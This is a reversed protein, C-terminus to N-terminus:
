TILFLCHTCVWDRVLYYLTTHKMSESGLRLRSQLLIHRDRIARYSRVATTVLILRHRWVPNEQLPIKIITPCRKCRATNYTNGAHAVACTPQGGLQGLSDGDMLSDRSM